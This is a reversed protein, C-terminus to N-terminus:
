DERVKIVKIANDDVLIYRNFGETPLIYSIPLNFTCNFKETGNKRLIHCVQDSLFIIQEGIMYVKNYDFNISKSMKVKGSLDYLETKLKHKDSSDNFVFGFNEKTLFVSRIQQKFSKSRIDRVMQKMEYLHYGQESFACVTNNELFEIKSIIQKKFTKASVINNTYNKGIEGLNYFTLKSTATGNTVNLYSTILKRGDSSLAIDVPYGDDSVNTMFEVLLEGNTSDYLQVQDSSERNMVVALVGQSSIRINTIPYLVNIEKPSDSGDFVSIETGGQDALAVYVGCSDFLPTSFDYSGSWQMELKKNFGVAGDRSYKMLKGDNYVTYNTITSDKRKISQIVKYGKYDKTYYSWVNFIVVLLICVSASGMIIKNRRKRWKKANDIRQNENRESLSEMRVGDKKYGKQIKRKNYMIRSFM